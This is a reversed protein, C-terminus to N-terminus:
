CWKEPDPWECMQLRQPKIFYGRGCLTERAAYDLFGYALAEIVRMHIEDPDSMKIHDLSVRYVQHPPPIEGQHEPCKWREHCSLGKELSVAIQASPGTVRCDVGAKECLSELTELPYGEWNMPYSKKVATFIFMNSTLPKEM